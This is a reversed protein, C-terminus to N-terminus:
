ESLFKSTESFSVDQVKLNINIFNFGDRYWAMVTYVPLPPSARCMIMPALHLDITRKLGQDIYGMFKWVRSPFWSVNWDFSSRLHRISYWSTFIILRYLSDPRQICLLFFVLLASMRHAPLREAASQTLALYM